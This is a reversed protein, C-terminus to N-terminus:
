TNSNLSYQRALNRRAASLEERLFNRVQIKKEHPLATPWLNNTEPNGGTQLALKSVSVGFYTTAFHSVLILDEQSTDGKLQGVLNEFYNHGKTLVADICLDKLIPSKPM